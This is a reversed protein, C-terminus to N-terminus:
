RAALEGFRGAAHDLGKDEAVAFDDAAVELELGQAEHAAVLAEDEPYVEGVGGGLLGLGDELANELKVREGDLVADRGAGQGLDLVVLLVEEDDHVRHIKVAGILEGGGLEVQKEPAFKEDGEVGGRELGDGGDDFAAGLGGADDGAAGVAEGVEHEVGQHVVVFGHGVLKAGLELLDLLVHELALGGIEGGAQEGHAALEVGEAGGNAGLALDGGAEGVALGLDDARDHDGVEAVQAVVEHADLLGGGAVGVLQEDGEVEM